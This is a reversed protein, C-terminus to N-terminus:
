QKVVRISLAGCDIITQLQDDALQIEMEEGDYLASANVRAVVIARTYVDVKIDKTKENPMSDGNSLFPM